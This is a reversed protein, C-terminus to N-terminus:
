KKGSDSGGNEYVAKLYEGFAYCIVNAGLKFAQDQQQQSLGSGGAKWADNIDGQHYFVIWRGNNKIGLARDGSHHFLRPAGNPFYFPQQYIVDDNAIDVLDHNPLIRKIMNRFARDFSGGGNDAFLMGGDRLLYDRLQKVEKTTLNIGRMGTIYIFPPKKGKKRFRNEIEDATVFETESAIAFGAWEKIKLLMNYDAGKGMDQDWDGGSYKLRIFRVKGNEMGNPWGPKGGKKGPGFSGGTTVYSSETQEDIEQLIEEDPIDPVTYIIASNPNLVFRKPKKKKKQKKQQMIVPAVQGGGDGKPINYEDEDYFNCCELIVPLLLLFFFYYFFVWYFSKYIRPNKGKCLLNTTLKETADAKDVPVHFYKKASAILLPFWLFFSFVFTPLWYWLYSIWIAGRQEADITTKKSETVVNMLQSPLDCAITLLCFWYAAFLAGSALLLYYVPRGLTPFIFVVFCAVAAIICLIRLWCAPSGTYADLKDTMNNDYIIELLSIDYRLNDVNFKADKFRNMYWESVQAEKDFFDKRTLLKPQRKKAKAMENDIFQKKIEDTAKKNFAAEWKAIEREAAQMLEREEKRDEAAAQEILLRNLKDIESQVVKRINSDIFAKYQGDVSPYLTNDEDFKLEIDNMTEEPLPDMKMVSIQDVGRTYEIKISNVNQVKLDKSDRDHFSWNDQQFFENFQEALSQDFKEEKTLLIRLEKQRETPHLVTIKLQEPPMPPRMIELHVTYQEPIRKVSLFEASNIYSADVNTLEQVLTLREAGSPDSNDKAPMSQAAEKDIEDAFGFEEIQEQRLKELKKLEGSQYNELIGFIENQRETLQYYQATLTAGEQTSSISIKNENRDAYSELSNKGNLLYYSSQRENVTALISAAILFLVFFRLSWPFPACIKGVLRCCWMFLKNLNNHLWTLANVVKDCIIAPLRVWNKRDSSFEKWDHKCKGPLGKLMASFDTVKQKFTYWKLQAHMKYLTIQTPLEGTRQKVKGPLEACFSIAERIRGIHTRVDDSCGSCVTSIFNKFKSNSM